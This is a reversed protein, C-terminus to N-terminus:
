KFLDAVQPITMTRLTAAYQRWFRISEAPLDNSTMAAESVRMERAAVQAKLWTRKQNIYATLFEARKM